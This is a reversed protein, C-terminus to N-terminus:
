SMHWQVDDTVDLSINPKMDPQANREMHTWFVDATAMTIGMM